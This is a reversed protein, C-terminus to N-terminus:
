RETTLGRSGGAKMNRDKSAGKEGQDETTKEMKWIKRNGTHGNIGVGKRGTKRRSIGERTEQGNTAKGMRELEGGGM